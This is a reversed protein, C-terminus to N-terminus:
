PDKKNGLVSDRWSNKNGLVSDRWPKGTRDNIGYINEYAATGGLGGALAGGIKGTRLGVVGGVVLAAGGILQPGYDRRSEYGAAARSSVYAMQRGLASLRSAFMTSSEQTTQEFSALTSNTAAVFLQLSGLFSGNNSSPTSQPTTTASNDTPTAAASSPHEASM